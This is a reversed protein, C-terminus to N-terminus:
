EPASRASLSTHLAQILELMTAMQTQLGKVDKALASITPEEGKTEEEKLESEPEPERRLYPADRNRILVLFHTNFSHEGCPANALEPRFACGDCLVLVSGDTEALPIETLSQPILNAASEGSCTRCAYFAGPLEINCETCNEVISPVPKKEASAGTVAAEGAERTENTADVEESTPEDGFDIDHRPVADVLSSRASRLRGARIRPIEVRYLCM